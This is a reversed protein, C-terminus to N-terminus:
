SKAAVPRDPWGLRWPWTEGSCTTAGSFAIVVHGIFDVRLGRLTLAVGLAVIALGILGVVVRGGIISVMTPYVNM